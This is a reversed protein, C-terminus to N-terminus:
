SNGAAKARLAAIIREPLAPMTTIQTGLADNIANIVAPAVPVTAIEGISKAGFPGAAEAEEILAIRIPPMEPANFVTYRSLQATTIRGKADFAIEESLAMGLGMQVSGHIQGEVFGRNIAQGIDHVAVYDLVKVHGTITDVEVEAFHAGYSAPNGPSQHTHSVSLDSKLQRQTFGIVESYAHHLEPRSICFVTGQETRVEEPACQLLKAANELLQARLLEAAAKVAGGCVFTVRSAQTGASDFACIDTDAEPIHVRDPSLDLVEAAIQMMTTVTGCGLDHFAGKLIATGSADMRITVTIFDPYAGFYGNGHTCCAM